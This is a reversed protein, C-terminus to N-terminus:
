DETQDNEKNSEEAAKAAQKKSIFKYIIPFLIFDPGMKAIICIAILLIKGGLPLTKYYAVIPALLEKVSNIGKVLLEKM